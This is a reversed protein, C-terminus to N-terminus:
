REVRLSELSKRIRPFTTSANELTDQFNISVYRDQDFGCSTVGTLGAQENKHSWRIQRLRLDGAELKREAPVAFFGPQNRAVETLFLQICHDTSFEGASLAAKPLQVVTIQLTTSAHLDGARYAYTTGLMSNAVVPEDLFDPPEFQLKIEAQANLSSSVCAVIVLLRLIM